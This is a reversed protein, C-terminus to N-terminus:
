PSEDGGAGVDVHRLPIAGGRQVPRRMPVVGLHRAEEEPGAGADVGGVIESDGRQQERAGIAPRRHDRHQELGAGIGILRSRIALRRQHGGGARAAELRDIREKASARLHVVPRWAGSLGGEHPGDGLPLRLDGAPEDFPARINVRTRGAPIM